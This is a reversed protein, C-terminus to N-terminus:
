ITRCIVLHYIMNYVRHLINEHKQFCFYDALQDKIRNGIGIPFNWVSSERQTKLFIKVKM